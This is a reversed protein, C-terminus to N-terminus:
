KLSVVGSHDALAGSLVLAQPTDNATLHLTRDGVKQSPLALDVSGTQAPLNYDIDGRLEPIFPTLLVVLPKILNLGACSVTMNKSKLLFESPGPSLHAKIPLKAVAFDLRTKENETVVKLSSAIGLRSERLSAQFTEAHTWPFQCALHGVIDLPVFKVDVDALAKGQVDLAFQVTDLGPAMNFDRLCINLSETKLQTAININAFNGTAAIRNLTEKGAECLLKEGSKETECVLKETAKLRECDLRKATAEARYLDNQTGKALECIPDNGRQICGGGICKGWACLKPRSLICASCDRRDVNPEVNCTRTSSCDRDPSCSIGAGSPLKIKSSTNQKTTQGSASVCAGCQGIVQNMTVAILDKRVAVWSSPETESLGFSQLVLDNVQKTISDFTKAIEVSTTASREDLPSLQVLLALRDDSVLWAVGSLKVPVMIPNGKVELTATAGPSALKFNKRPDLPKTAMAPITIKSFPARTLEGTINNKYKNVITALIEGVKTADVKRALKIKEVKVGSLAPLMRIELEPVPMGEAVLAGSLGVYATIIGTIEPKLTALVNRLEKDEGADEESFKRDFKVRVHLLQKDGEILVESVGDKKLRESHLAKQAESLKVAMAINPTTLKSLAQATTDIATQRQQDASIPPFKDNVFKTLSDGCGFLFFLTAFWQLDVRM